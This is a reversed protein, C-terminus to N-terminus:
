TAAAHGRDAGAGGAWAPMRDPGGWRGRQPDKCSIKETWPHLMVYRGQFQNSSSEVAKKEGVNGKEDPVGRGGIMPSAKKFVLDEGLSASTYRYHLRTIVASYPDLSGVM